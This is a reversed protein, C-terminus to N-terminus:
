LTVLDDLHATHNLLHMTRYHRSFVIKAIGCNYLRLRSRSLAEAPIELLRGLFFGGFHAHSVIAVPASGLPHREALLQLFREVRAVMEAKHEGHYSAAWGHEEPFGEPLVAEPALSRLETGTLGPDGYLMGYECVDPEVIIRTECAAAIERATEVSRRAPSSYVTRPVGNTAANAALWTGTRRAQETGTASLPSDDSRTSGDNEGSQGHRILYLTTTQEEM